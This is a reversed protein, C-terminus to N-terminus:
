KKGHSKIQPYSIIKFSGSKGEIKRLIREIQGIGQTRNYSTGVYYLTGNVNHEQKARFYSLKNSLLKKNDVDAKSAVSSISDDQAIEAIKEPYKDAIMDFAEHMMTSLKTASYTKGWLEYVFEGNSAKDEDQEDNGIINDGIGAEDAENNNNIGNDSNNNTNEIKKLEEEMEGVLELIDNGADGALRIASCETKILKCIEDCTNFETEPSNNLINEYFSDADMNREHWIDIVAIKNIHKLKKARSLEKAIADKVMSSESRFYFAMKCNKNRLARIASMEWTNEDRPINAIDIWLNHGREVLQKFVNMVIQADYEDHSYSIFAFPKEMNCVMNKIEKKKLFELGTLEQAM